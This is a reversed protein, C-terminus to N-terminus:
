LVVSPDWCCKGKGDAASLADLRDMQGPSLSFSFLDSNKRIYEEHYSKPIVRYGHQIAWRLLVQSEDRSVEKSIAVVVEHRLLNGEGLSSYAQIYISAGQCFAITKVPHYLPHIEIQNVLPRMAGDSSSLLDLLHREEYNSVGLHRIICPPSSTRVSVSSGKTWRLLFSLACDAESNINFMCGSEILKTWRYLAYLEKRWTETLATWSENRLRRNEPSNPKIKSAGPWHILFLDVYHLPKLKQLSEYIAEQALLLGQRRPSLKTTVYVDSRDIGKIILQESLIRALAAENGYVAATDFCRYGADLAAPIAISLQEESMRFTGLGLM